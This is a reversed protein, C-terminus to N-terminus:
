WSEIFGDPIWTGVTARLADLKREAMEVKNKLEALDAATLRVELVDTTETQTEYVMKLTIIPILGEISERTADYVPRADCLIDLGRISSGTLRALRQAKQMRELAPYSRVLLELKARLGKFLSESFWNQNEASSNRWREVTDCIADIGDPSLNQVTNIAAAVQADDSLHSRIMETLDDPSLFGVASVLSQSIQQLSDDPVNAFRLLDQIMEPIAASVPGPVIIIRDAM